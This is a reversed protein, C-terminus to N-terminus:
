RFDDPPLSMVYSTIDTLTHRAEMYRIVWWSGLATLISLAALIM